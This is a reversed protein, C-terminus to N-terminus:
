FRFQAINNCPRSRLWNSVSAGTDRKTKILADHGHRHDFNVTINPNSCFWELERDCVECMPNGFYQDLYQIWESVYKLKKQKNYLKKRDKNNEYWERRKDPNLMAYRRSKVRNCNKCVYSIGTRTNKDKGFCDISLVQKCRSCKKM